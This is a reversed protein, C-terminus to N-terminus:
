FWKHFTYFSNSPEFGHRCWVKQPAINTIQTSVLLYEHKNEWSWNKATSILASYLGFNQFLPDVGNLVIECGNSDIKKMALFAVIQEKQCILFVPDSFFNGRCSNAAWSSYVQDADSKNLKPDAHYHGFYNSFSRGALRGVTDADEITALRWDYGPPIVNHTNVIEKNKYYVLTDTLYFGLSEMKQVSNIYDTPCRAILMEVKKEECWCIIEEIDDQADISIKATTVGFRNKDLESLAIKM